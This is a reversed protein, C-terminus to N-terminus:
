IQDSDEDRSRVPSTNKGPSSRKQECIGHESTMSDERTPLRGLKQSKEQDSATNGVDTRCDAKQNERRLKQIKMRKNTSVAETM